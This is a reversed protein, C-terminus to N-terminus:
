QYGVGLVYDRLLAEEETVEELLARALDRAHVVGVPRGAGDLIPVCRFARATLSEWVGQLTQDVHCSLMTPTMVEGAKTNFLDVGRCAIANVIDSRSIVGVAVGDRDCVVVLPTNPSALIRASDAVCVDRDLVALRQRATDLIHHVLMAMNAEEAM